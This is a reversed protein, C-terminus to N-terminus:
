LLTCPQLGSSDSRLYKDFAQLFAALDEHLDTADM